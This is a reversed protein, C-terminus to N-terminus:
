RVHHLRAAMQHSADTYHHTNVLKANYAAYKAPSHNAFNNRPATHYTEPLPNFSLDAHTKRYNRTGQSQYRHLKAAAEQILTLAFIILIVLSRIFKM